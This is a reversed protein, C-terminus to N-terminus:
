DFTWGFTEIERSFVAAVLSRERDGYLEQYPRRDPRFNGKARQLDQIEPLGLREAIEDLASALHEYRIVWDVAIRNRITYLRWNSYHRLHDSAVFAEFSLPRRNSYWYWASVVLDWPNREITFKFYSDWTERGIFQRIAVAPMHNYFLRDPRGLGWRIWEKLRWRAKPVLRNQPLVGGWETRLQEDPATDPTIVDNPGGHRSLAIEV